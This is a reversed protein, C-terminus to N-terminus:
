MRLRKCLRPTSQGPPWRTGRLKKALAAAGPRRKNHQWRGALNAVPAREPGRVHTARGQPQPGANAM